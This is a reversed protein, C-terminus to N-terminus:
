RDYFLICNLISSLSMGQYIDFAPAYFFRRALLAELRTKDFAHATKNVSTAMEETRWHRIAYSRHLSFSFSTSTRRLFSSPSVRRAALLMRIQALARHFPPYFKSKATIVVIIRWSVAGLLSEVNNCHGGLNSAVSPIIWSLPAQVFRKM